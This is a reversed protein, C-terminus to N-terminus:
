GIENPFVVNPQHVLKAFVMVVSEVLFIINFIILDIFFLVLWHHLRNTTQNFKRKCIFCAHCENDPRWYTPRTSEKILELFLNNRLRIEGEFYKGIPYNAGIKELGSLM